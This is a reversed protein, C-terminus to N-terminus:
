GWDPTRQLRSGPRPQVDSRPLLRNEEIGPPTCLVALFQSPQPLSSLLLWARGPVPALRWPQSVLDYGGSQRHKRGPFQPSPVKLREQPVEASRLAEVPSDWTPPTLLFRPDQLPPAGTPVPVSNPGTQTDITSVGPCTRCTGAVGAHERGTKWSQSRPSVGWGWWNQAEQTEEGLPAEM